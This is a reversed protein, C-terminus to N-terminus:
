DSLGYFVGSKVILGDKFEFKEIVSTKTKGDLMSYYELICMDGQVTIEKPIFKLKPYNNQLASTWYHELDKKNTIISQMQPLVLKVKPSSFEINESYMALVAKIDRKNWADIWKNVHEKAFSESVM